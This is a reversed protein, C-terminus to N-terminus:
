PRGRPPPPVPPTGRAVDYYDDWHTHDDGVRYVDYPVEVIDGGVDVPWPDRVTVWKVGNRIAYGSAVMMHGSGGTWRWTFAVPVRRCGIQRRLDDWSLATDTTHKATYGYKPFNPWGGNVCDDPTPSDCCTTLNFRDNAQRCQAIDVNFSQM